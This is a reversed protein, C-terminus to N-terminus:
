DYASRNRAVVLTTTLLAALILIILLIGATENIPIPQIMSFRATFSFIDHSFYVFINRFDYSWLIPIILGFVFMFIAPPLINKLIFSLCFGLVIYFFIVFFSFLIQIALSRQYNFIDIVFDNIGIQTAVLPTVIYSGLLIIFLAFILTLIMVIVASILKGIIIYEQFYQVSLLKYTKLKYEYSAVFCAYIGFILTCFVFVSFELFNGIINRPSLNQISIALTTFDYNLLNGIVRSSGDFYVYSPERLAEVIDIGEAIFISETRRYLNYASIIDNYLGLLHIACLVILSLLPILIKRSHWQYYLEKKVIHNIDRIFKM